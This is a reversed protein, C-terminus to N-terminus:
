LSFFLIFPIMIKEKTCALVEGANNGRKEYEDEDEDENDVKLCVTVPDDRDDHYNHCKWGGVGGCTQKFKLPGSAM